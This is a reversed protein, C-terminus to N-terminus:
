GAVVLNCRVLTGKISIPGPDEINCERGDIVAKDGKVIPWLPLFDTPSITVMLQKEDIDGVLEEPKAPRVFANMPLETKPRPSGTPSTYRRLIIPDGHLVLQADLSAIAETPTM